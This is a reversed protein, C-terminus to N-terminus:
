ELGEPIFSDRIDFQGWTLGDITSKTDRIMWFPYPLKKDDAQCIRDFFVPDFTNNRTYVVKLKEINVNNIFWDHMTYICVDKTSPALQKQAERGQEGWWKLTDNDIKRGQVVVQRQVDFKIFKTKSLLGEYTYLNDQLVDRNFTLLACSLVVGNVQDQSLTEFDYIVANDEM